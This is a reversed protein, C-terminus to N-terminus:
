GDQALPLDVREIVPEVGVAGTNGQAVRDAGGAGADEGGGCVLGFAALRAIDELRHADAAAL